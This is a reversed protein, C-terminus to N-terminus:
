DGGTVFRIHDEYTYFPEFHAGCECDIERFFDGRNDYEKGCVPCFLRAVLMVGHKYPAEVYRCDLKM